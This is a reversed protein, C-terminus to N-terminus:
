VEMSVENRTARAGNSGSFNDWACTDKIPQPCYKVKKGRRELAAPTMLDMLESETSRATRARDLLLRKDCLKTKLSKALVM